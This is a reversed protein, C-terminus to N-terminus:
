EAPPRPQSASAGLGQAGQGYNVTIASTDRGCANTASRYCQRILVETRGAFIHELPRVAGAVLIGGTGLEATLHM